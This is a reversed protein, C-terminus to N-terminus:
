CTWLRVERHDGVAREEPGDDVEFGVGEQEYSAQDVRHGLRDSETRVDGLAWGPM